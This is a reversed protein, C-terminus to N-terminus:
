SSLCTKLRTLWDPFFPLRMLADKLLNDWLHNWGPFYFARPFLYKTKDVICKSAEDLGSQLWVFFMPLVDPFDCIGSETGFDTVSAVVSFLFQRMQIETPGALLWIVWLVTMVKDILRAFGHGFTTLPLKLSRLGGINGAVMTDLTGGFIKLGVQDSADVGIVTHLDLGASLYSHVEERHLIM